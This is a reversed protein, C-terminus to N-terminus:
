NSVDSIEDVDVTYGFTTSVHTIKGKIKVRDGKSKNMLFDNYEEDVYCEITDASNSYAGVHITGHEGIYMIVADFVVYKDKYNNEARMENAALETLLGDVTVKKYKSVASVPKKVTDDALTVVPITQVMEESPDAISEAIGAIM